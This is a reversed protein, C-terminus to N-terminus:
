ATSKEALNLAARAVSAQGSHWGEHWAVLEFVSRYDPLFGPAGEPTPKLLDDESLEDLIGILVSRRDRMYDVVEEPPPYQSPDSTPQSGMGFKAQYDAKPSSKSPDILSIMFDDVVGMHGAFWLPHNAKEHVQYTWQEPTEFAKLLKESLFRAQEVQKKLRDKSAM